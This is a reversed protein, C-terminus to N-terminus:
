TACDPITRDKTACACVYVCHPSRMRVQAALQLAGGKGANVTAGHTIAVRVLERGAQVEDQVTVGGQTDDSHTAGNGSRRRTHAPTSEGAAEQAVAVARKFSYDESKRPEQSQQPTNHKAHTPSGQTSVRRSRRAHRTTEQLKAAACAYLVARCNSLRPRWLVCVCGRILLSTMIILQSLQNYVLWPRLPQVHTPSAHACAHM